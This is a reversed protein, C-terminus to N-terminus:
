LDTSRRGCMFRQISTHIQLLDTGPLLKRMGKELERQFGAKFGNDAKWGDSVIDYLCQILEDEEIKSWSCRGRTAKGKGGDLNGGIVNEDM